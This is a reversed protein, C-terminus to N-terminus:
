LDCCGVRVRGARELLTVRSLEKRGGVEGGGGRWFGHVGVKVGGVFGGRVM